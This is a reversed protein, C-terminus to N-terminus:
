GKEFWLLELGRGKKEHRKRLSQGKARGTRFKTCSRRGGELGIREKLESYRWNKSTIKPKFVGMEKSGVRTSKEM